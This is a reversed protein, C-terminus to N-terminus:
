WWYHPFYFANKCGFNIMMFLMWDTGWMFWFNQKFFVTLSLSMIPNYTFLYQVWNTCWTKSVLAKGICPSWWQSTLILQYFILRFEADFRFHCVFHDKKVLSINMSRLVSALVTKKLPKVPKFRLLDDLLFLPMADFGSKM